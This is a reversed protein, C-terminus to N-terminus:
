ISEVVMRLGRGASSCARDYSASSLRLWVLACRAGYGSWKFLVVAALMLEGACPPGDTGVSFSFSFFPSPFTRDLIFVTKLFASRRSEVSPEFAAVV